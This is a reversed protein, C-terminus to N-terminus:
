TFEKQRLLGGVSGSGRPSLFALRPCDAIYQFNGMFGDKERGAFDDTTTFDGEAVKGPSTWGM